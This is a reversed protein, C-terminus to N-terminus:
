GVDNWRSYDQGVAKNASDFFVREGQLDTMYVHYENRVKNIGGIDPAFRAINYSILCRRWNGMRETGSLLDPRAPEALM